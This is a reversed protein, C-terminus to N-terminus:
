GKHHDTPFKKEAAREAAQESALDDADKKAQVMEAHTHRVAQQVVPIGQTAAPIFTNSNQLAQQELRQAPTLDAAPPWGATVVAEFDRVRRHRRDAHLDTYRRSPHAAATHHVVPAHVVPAVPPPNVPHTATM